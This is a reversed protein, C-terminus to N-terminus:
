RDPGTGSARLREPLNGVVAGAVILVLAVWARPTLSGGGTAALVLTSALPTVYALAGIGRPDGSKLAADWLFFALGMPGIGLAVLWPWDALPVRYSPEFLAHAVLGLVGSVICFLGVTETPFPAVRRTLLSYTSWIVAAITALGYGALRQPDLSWDIGGVLVATGAFGMLGAAIHRPRLRVAPFFAPTLLVILLPWLYNLLNAEVPPALRLAMFLCLHYAFLGYVGLLLLRGDFRWRRARPVAVLGGIVLGIGVLLFPPIAALRVGLAAVSAWLVIAGLALLLPRVNSRTHLDELGRRV